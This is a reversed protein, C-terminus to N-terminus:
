KIKNSKPLKEVLSLVNKHASSRSSSPSAGFYHRTGKGIKQFCNSCLNMTTRKEKNSQGYTSPIQTNPAASHLGNNEDIRTHFSRIHGKGKVVKSHGKFRATLCIYCNCASTSRTEKALQVDEYNPMTPFPRTKSGKEREMISKRCTSCISVPFKSNSVDFKEHVHKKILDALNETISFESRRRNGFVIKIDYTACIKLRNEEHDCIHDLYASMFTSNKSSINKEM